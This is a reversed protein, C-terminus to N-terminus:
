DDRWMFGKSLKSANQEINSYILNTVEVLHASYCVSLEDIVMKIDENDPSYKYLYSLKPDTIIIKAKILQKIIPEVTKDDIFLRQSVDTISWNKKDDSRILLIAEVYPISSVYTQIFKKVNDSINSM